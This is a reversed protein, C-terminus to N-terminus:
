RPMTKLISIPELFKPSTIWYYSSRVNRLQLSVDIAALRMFVVLGRILIWSGFFRGGVMWLVGRIEGFWALLAAWDLVVCVDDDAGLWPRGDYRMKGHLICSSYSRMSPPLHPLAPFLLHQVAPSSLSGSLCLKIKAPWPHAKTPYPKQILGRVQCATQEKSYWVRMWIWIWIWGISWVIEDTLEGFWDIMEFHTYTKEGQKEDRQTPILPTSIENM